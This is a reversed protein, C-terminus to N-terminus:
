WGMSGPGGKFPGVVDPTVWGGYFGGPQPEVPVGDVTVEDFPAAYFAVHDRIARFGPTPDPYDWGVRELTEGGAVVDWYRAAGKWECHSSGAAPRLHGPRIDDPPLYWSPPHSTELVRYARHTDVITEGRHRIVVHRTDQELRPPRPYDWVSEQGPGPKVPVPRPMATTAERQSTPPVARPVTGPVRAAM